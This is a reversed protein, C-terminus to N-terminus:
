QKKLNVGEAAFRTLCLFADEFRSQMACLATRATEEDAFLGYVASGSGTLAALPTYKKLEDIMQRSEPCLSPLCEEFVNYLRHLRGDALSFKDSEDPRPAAFGSFIRDTEAFAAGTSIGREPKAILVFSGDDALPTSLAEGVGRCIRRGGELCFPVDAGVSLACKRIAESRVDTGTLECLCALVGAADASGGGLGAMFPIRKEVKIRIDLPSGYAELFARAADRATDGGGQPVFKGCYLTEIRSEDTSSASVTVVDSLGVSQMVTSLDHYGDPRRSLIDLYLNIKARCEASVTKYKMMREAM